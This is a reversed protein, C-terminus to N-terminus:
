LQTAVQVMGSVSQEAARPLIELRWGVSITPSRDDNGLIWMSAINAEHPQLEVLVHVVVALAVVNRQESTVKRVLTFTHRMLQVVICYEPTMQFVSDIHDREDVITRRENFQVLSDRIQSIDLKGMLPLAGNKDVPGLAYGLWKGLAVVHIQM